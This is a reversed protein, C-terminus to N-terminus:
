PKKALFRNLPNPAKTADVSLWVDRDNVTSLNTWNEQVRLAEFEPLAVLREVTFDNAVGCCWNLRAAPSLNNGIRLLGRSAKRM